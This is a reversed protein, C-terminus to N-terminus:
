RKVQPNFVSPIPTDQAGGHSTYVLNCPCSSFVYWTGTAPRYVAVDAKGDHDYDGAVPVDGAQGWQESRMVGNSSQQIYWVGDSPRWAAVDTKGDGDYDAPV